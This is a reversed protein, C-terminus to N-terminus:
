FEMLGLKVVVFVFVILNRLVRVNNLLELFVM